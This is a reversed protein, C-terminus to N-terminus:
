LLRLPEVHGDPFFMMAQGKHPRDNNIPAYQHYENFLIRNSLDKLSGLKVAWCCGWYRNFLKGGESYQMWADDGCFDRNAEKQERTIPDTPCWFIPILKEWPSEGNGIYPAALIQWAFNHGAIGCHIVGTDFGCYVPLSENNDNAYMLVGLVVQKRNSLCKTQQAAQRAQNLAPLLMSALIAIIAIVVLLEILTFRSRSLHIMHRACAKESM